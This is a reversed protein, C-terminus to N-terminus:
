ISYRVLKIKLQVLGLLRFFVDNKKKLYLSNLENAIRTLDATDNVTNIQTFYIQYAQNSSNNNGM